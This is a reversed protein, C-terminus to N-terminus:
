CRGVKATERTQSGGTVGVEKKRRPCDSVVMEQRKCRRITIVSRMQLYGCRGSVREGILEVQRSM